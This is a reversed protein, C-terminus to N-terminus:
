LLAYLLAARPVAVTVLPASPRAPGGGRAAAGSRRPQLHGSHHIDATIAYSSHGLHDQVVKPDTGAAPLFSAASLRLTHAVSRLGAREALVEIRRLVNRPELPTGIETTFVLGHEQWAGAATRQEELQRTRRGQLAVTAARPLPVTRRSTDTPPEDLKLGRSESRADM